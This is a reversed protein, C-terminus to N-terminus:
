SRALEVVSELDGKKSHRKKFSSIIDDYGNLAEHQRRLEKMRTTYEAEKEPSIEKDEKELFLVIGCAECSIGKSGPRMRIGCNRCHRKKKRRVTYGM